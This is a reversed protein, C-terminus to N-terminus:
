GDVPSRIFVAVMGAIIGTIVIVVIAEVLTFGRSNNPLYLSFRM